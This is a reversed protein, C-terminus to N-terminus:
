HVPLTRIEATVGLEGLDYFADEADSMNKWLTALEGNAYVAYVKEIEEQLLEDLAEDDDKQEQTAEEKEEKFFNHAFVDDLFEEIESLEETSLPRKYTKEKTDGLSIKYSRFSNNGFPFESGFM